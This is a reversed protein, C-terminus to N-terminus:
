RPRINRRLHRVARRASAVIRLGSASFTGEPWYGFDRTSKLLDTVRIIRVIPKAETGTQGDVFSFGDFALGDNSAPRSLFQILNSTTAEFSPL